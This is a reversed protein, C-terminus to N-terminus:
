VCSRVEATFDGGVGRQLLPTPPIKRRRGATAKAYAPEAKQERRQGDKGGAGVGCIAIPDGGPRRGVPVGGRM